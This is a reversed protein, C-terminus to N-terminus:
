PWIILGKTFGLTRLSNKELSRALLWRWQIRRSRLKGYTYLKDLIGMTSSSIYVFHSSAKDHGPNGQVMTSFELIFRPGGQELTGPLTLLLRVDGGPSPPIIIQWM